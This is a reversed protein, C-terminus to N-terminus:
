PKGSLELANGKRMAELGQLIKGGVLEVPLERLDQGAAELRGMLQELEERGTIVDHFVLRLIRGARSTALPLETGLYEECAPCSPDGYVDILFLARSLEGLRKEEAALDKILDCETCGTEARADSAPVAPFVVAVLIRTNDLAPLSSRVLLARSVSKGQVTVTGGLTYTAEIVRSSGPDLVFSAPAVTMCPCASLIDVRAALERSPNRLEFRGTVPRADQMVGLDITGLVQAHSPPCMLVLLAFLHLIRRVDRGLLTRRKM